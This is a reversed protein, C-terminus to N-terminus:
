CWIWPWWSKQKREKKVVGLCTSTRLGPILDSSCSRGTACSCCHRIKLRKVWQEPGPISSTSGCLCASDHVWQAVAPVGSGDLIKSTKKVLPNNFNIIYGEWQQILLNKLYSEIKLMNTKWCILVKNQSQKPTSFKRGQRGPEDIWKFTM